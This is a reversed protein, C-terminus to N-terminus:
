KSKHSNPRLKEVTALYKFNRGNTDIFDEPTQTGLGIGSLEYTSAPYTDIFQQYRPGAASYFLMTCLHCSDTLANHSWSNFDIHANNRSQVRNPAHALGFM